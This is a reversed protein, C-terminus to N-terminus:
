AFNKPETETLVGYYELSNTLGFRGLYACFALSLKQRLTTQSAGRFNPKIFIYQNTHQVTNNLLKMQAEFPTTAKGAQDIIRPLKRLINQWIRRIHTSRKVKGEEDQGKWQFCIDTADIENCSYGDLTADEVCASGCERTEV